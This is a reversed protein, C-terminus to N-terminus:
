CSGDPACAVAAATVLAVYALCLLPLLAALRLARM